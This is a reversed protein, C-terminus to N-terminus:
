RDKVLRVSFACEKSSTLENFTETFYALHRYYAANGDKEDATWFYAFNGLYNFVGASTRSGFPMASFGIADTGPVGDGLLGQLKWESSRSKLITGVEGINLKKCYDELENFEARTPLHWGPPAISKATTWPYLRGYVNEHSLSNAYVYSNSIAYRFNEALWTQNGITVTKYVNKDRSDILTNGSFVPTPVEPVDFDYKLHAAKKLAINSYLAGCESCFKATQEMRHGCAPCTKYLPAGCEYCHKAFFLIKTGCEACKM